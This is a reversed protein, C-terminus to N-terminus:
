LRRTPWANFTMERSEATSTFLLSYMELRFIDMESPTFCVQNFMYTANQQFSCHDWDIIQLYISLTHIHTFPIIFSRTMIIEVLSMRETYYLISIFFILHVLKETIKWTLSPIIKCDKNWNTIYQITCMLWM